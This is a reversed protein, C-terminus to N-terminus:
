FLVSRFTSVVDKREIAKRLVKENWDAEEDESSPWQMPDDFKELSWRLLHKENENLFLAAVRFRLRRLM